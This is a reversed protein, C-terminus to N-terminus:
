YPIQEGNWAFLKGTSNTDLNDIVTLLHNASVTPSFLKNDPVSNQFPKSLETDVTGPHLTVAIAEPNKRSLEISISKIMMNLAAKSSRYGYWGGLNNDEISGVRASLTAFVSKRDKPLIELFHKAVLAPGITNISFIRSLNFENLGRWSKEPQLDDGQHLIETAVIILDIKQTKNKIKEIASIISSENTVDLNLNTTNNEEENSHTRSCSFINGVRPQKKLERLLANGIGGNSGIIVVDFDNNFSKMLINGM